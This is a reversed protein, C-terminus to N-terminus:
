RATQCRALYAGAAERIQTEDIVDFVSGLEAAYGLGAIEAAVM